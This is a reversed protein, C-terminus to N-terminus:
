EGRKLPCIDIDLRGLDTEPRLNIAMSISTLVRIILLRIRDMTIITTGTSTAAQLKQNM